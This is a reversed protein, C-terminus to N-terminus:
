ESAEAEAASRFQKKFPAGEAEEALVGPSLTELVEIAFEEGHPLAVLYSMNALTKERLYVRRKEQDSMVAIYEAVAVLAKRLNGAALANFVKAGYRDGFAELMGALYGYKERRSKSRNWLFMVVGGAGGAALFPQVAELISLFDM